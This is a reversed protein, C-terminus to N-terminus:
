SELSAGSFEPRLRRNPETGVPRELPGGLHTTRRLAETPCNSRPSGYDVARVDACLEFDRGQVVEEDVGRRGFWHQGFSCRIGPLRPDHHHIEPGGPGETETDEKAEEEIATEIARVRDEAGLASKKFEELLRSMTNRAPSLAPDGWRASLDFVRRIQEAHVREELLAKQADGQEKRTADQTRAADRVSAGVYYAATVGGAAASAAAVFQLLARQKPFYAYLLVLGAGILFAIVGVTITVTFRVHFLEGIRGKEPM